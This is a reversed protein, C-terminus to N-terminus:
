LTRPEFTPSNFQQSMQLNISKSNQATLVIFKEHKIASQLHNRFCDEQILSLIFLHRCKDWHALM